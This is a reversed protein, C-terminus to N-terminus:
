GLASDEIAVGSGRTGRQYMAFRYVEGEEDFGELCVFLCLFIM